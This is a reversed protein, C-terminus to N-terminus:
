KYLISHKVKTGPYTTYQEVQEYKQDTENWKMIIFGTNARLVSKQYQEDIKIICLLAQPEGDLLIRWQQPTDPSNQNIIVIFPTVAAYNAPPKSERILYTGYPLLASTAMGADNTILTYPDNPDDSLVVALGLKDAEDFKYSGDDNKPIKELDSLL